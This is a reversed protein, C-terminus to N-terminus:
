YQNCSIHCARLFVWVPHHQPLERPFAIAAVAPHALAPDQSAAVVVGALLQLGGSLM